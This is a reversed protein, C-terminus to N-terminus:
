NTLGHTILNHVFIAELITHKNHFCCNYCPNLSYLKSSTRLFKPGNHYDVFRNPKLVPDPVYKKIFALIYKMKDQHVHFCITYITDDPLYEFIGLKM